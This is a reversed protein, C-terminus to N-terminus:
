LVQNLAAALAGGALLVLLLGPRGNRLGAPLLQFLLPGALLALGGAIVAPALALRDLAFRLAGLGLLLVALLALLLLADALPGRQAPTRAALPLFGGLLVLAAALVAVGAAFLGLAAIDLSDLSM